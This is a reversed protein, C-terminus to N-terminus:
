FARRIGTTDRDVPLAENSRWADTMRLSAATWSARNVMGEKHPRVVGFGM